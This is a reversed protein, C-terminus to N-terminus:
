KIKGTLKGISYAIGAAAGTIALVDGATDLVDLVRQKGKKAKANNPNFLDNYNRELYERNIKDQLEKNSMKSLDMREVKPNYLRNVTNRTSRNITGASNLIDQTSKYDQGADQKIRENIMDETYKDSMKKQYEGGEEHGTQLANRKASADAATRIDTNNKTDSGYRKKGAETLTGDPNQYRRVGWKMGLIGSHKLYRTYM